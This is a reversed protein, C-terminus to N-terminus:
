GPSQIQTEASSSRTAAPEAVAPITAARSVVVPAVFVITAVEGTRVAGSAGGTVGVVVAVIVGAGAGVGAEFGFRFGPGLPGISQGALFPKVTTSAEIGARPLPRASATALAFCASERPKRSTPM